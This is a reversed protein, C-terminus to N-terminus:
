LSFKVSGSFKHEPAKDKKADIRFEKALSYDGSFTFYENVKYAVKPIVNWQARFAESPKQPDETTTLYSGRISFTWKPTACYALTAGFGWADIPSLKNKEKDIYYAACMEKREEDEQIAALGSVYDGLGHVYIGQATATFKEPVVQYQIGLDGGYTFFHHISQLSKDGPNTSHTYDTCRLLGSLGINCRDTVFGLNLGGAPISNKGTFPREKNDLKDWKNVRGKENEEKDSKTENARNKDFLGVKLPMPREIACGVRFWDFAYAYKIQLVTAGGSILLASDAKEYGFISSTYGMTVMKGITVAAKGITFAKGNWKAGIKVIADKNGWAKPVDANFTLQASLSNKTSLTSDQYVIAPSMTVTTGLKILDESKAQDGKKDIAEEAKLGDQAVMPTVGEDVELQFEYQDAYMPDIISNAFFLGLLAIKIKMTMVYEYEFNYLKFNYGQRLGRKYFSVLFGAVQRVLM